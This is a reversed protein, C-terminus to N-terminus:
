NVIKVDVLEPDDPGVNGTPTALLRVKCFKGCNKLFYRFTERDIGKTSIKFHVTGAEVYAGSNSAAYVRADTIVVQKGVYQELDIFLDAGVLHPVNSPAPAFEQAQVPGGLIVIGALLGIMLRM